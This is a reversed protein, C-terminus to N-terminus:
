HEITNYAYLSAELERRYTLGRLQRGGAKDWRRLQHPVSQHDEKNLVKLLTSKRFAGNGVNFVFSSLADYQNQKLPVKIDKSMTQAHDNLDQLLLAYADEPLLPQPIKEGKKVVHGYGVTPIGVADKYIFPRYGEMQAVLTVAQPSVRCDM